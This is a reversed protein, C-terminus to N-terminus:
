QKVSFEENAHSLYLVNSMKKCSIYKSINIPFSFDKSKNVYFIGIITTAAILFLIVVIGIFIKLFNKM